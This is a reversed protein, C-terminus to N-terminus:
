GHAARADSRLAQEDGDPVDRVRLEELTLQREVVVAVDLGYGPEVAVLMSPTNAQPSTWSWTYRWATVAAPVPQMAAM